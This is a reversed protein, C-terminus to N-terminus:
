RLEGFKELARRDDEAKALLGVKRYCQERKALAAATQNIALARTLSDIAAMYDGRQMELEGRYQWATSFNADLETARRIQAYAEKERNLKELAYSAEVCAGAARPDSQLASRADALALDPQGIENLQWARHTLLEASQPEAAIQADLRSVTELFEPTLNALQLKRVPSKEMRGLSALALARFLKPRAANPALIGARTADDLALSADEARLFLLARDASLGADNPLAALQRDLERVEDLFKGLRDFRALERRVLPDDPAISQARHLDALSAEWNHLHRHCGARNLLARATPEPGMGRSWAAIAEPWHGETQELRAIKLFVRAPPKKGAVAKSWAALAEDHRGDRLALDGRYEHYKPAPRRVAARWQTITQQLAVLDRAGWQAQALRAWAGNDAPSFKLVQEALPIARAFQRAHLANKLESRLTKEEPSIHRQCGIQGLVLLLLPLLQPFSVRSFNM